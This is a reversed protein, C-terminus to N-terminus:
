IVAGISSLRDQLLAIPVDCLGISREAAIAAAVDGGTGAGHM